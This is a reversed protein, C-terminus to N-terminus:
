KAPQSSEEKREQKKKRIFEVTNSMEIKQLFGIIVPGLKNYKTHTMISEYIGIMSDIHEEKVTINLREESNKMASAYQILISACFRRKGDPTENDQKIISMSDTSTGNVLNRLEDILTQELKNVRGFKKISGTLQKLKHDNVPDAAAVSIGM